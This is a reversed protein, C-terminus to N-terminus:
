FTPQRGELMTLWPCSIFEGPSDLAVDGVFYAWDAVKNVNKVSSFARSAHIPVRGGTFRAVCQGSCSIALSVCNHFITQFVQSRPLCAGVHYHILSVTENPSCFDMVVNASLEDFGTPPEWKSIM